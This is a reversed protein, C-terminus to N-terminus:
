KSFFLCQPSVREKKSEGEQKEKQKAEKKVVASLADDDSVVV